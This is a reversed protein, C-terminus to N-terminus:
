SSVVYDTTTHRLGFHVEEDVASLVCVREFLRASAVALSGLLQFPVLPKRLYSPIIVSM